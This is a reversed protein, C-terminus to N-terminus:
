SIIIMLMYRGPKSLIMETGSDFFTRWLTHNKLSVRWMQGVAEDANSLKGSTSSHDEVGSAEGIASSDTSATNKDECENPDEVGAIDECFNAYGPSDWSDTMTFCEEAAKLLAAEWDPNEEALSSYSSAGAGSNPPMVPVGSTLLCLSDLKSEGCGGANDAEDMSLMMPDM